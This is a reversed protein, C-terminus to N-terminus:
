LCTLTVACTGSCCDDGLQCPQATPRCAGCTDDSLCRKGGGCSCPQGACDVYGQNCSHGCAGGATCSAVGNTVPSCECGDSAQHDCDLAGGLCTLGCAGASCTAHSSAGYPCAHACGGCNRPDSQTDDCGDPCLTYTCAADTAPAAESSVPRGDDADSADVGGGEGARQGADPALADAPDGDANADAGDSTGADLGLLGACGACAAALVVVARCEFATRLHMQMTQLRRRM